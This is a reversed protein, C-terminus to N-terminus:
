VSDKIKSSTRSCKGFYEAMKQPMIIFYNVWWVRHYHSLLSIYKISNPDPALIYLSKFNM